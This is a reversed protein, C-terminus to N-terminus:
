LTAAGPWGGICLGTIINGDFFNRQMKAMLIKQPTLYESALNQGLLFKMRADVPRLPGSLSGLPRGGWVHGLLGSVSLGPWATPTSGWGPEGGKAPIEQTWGSRRGARGKGQPDPGKAPGM